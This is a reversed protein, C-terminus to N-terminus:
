SLEVTWNMKDETLGMQLRTLVSYLQQSVTGFGDVGYSVRNGKYTISGVPSVVVATGTCFVEDADLLEDVQVAREEVQFGESRAVDIISKRTIGPLITGKIAPTSIVNDKVMFINCSSVEELYKKHVCDLYLVDSYGKAKAASQAKLVAAYNGITKVGGTGGPTARHLEHEVILNIPAVGEKFYNGVPSVYILFTYEPAPALGLVAGSGMLLPRIYLSGKGPPPVWRKNALVTAKVAEVFQEVTPSPMCMREAGLRMRFANEEPRFLLINGDEKRYAKLGQAIASSLFTDTSSSIHRRRSFLLLSFPLSPLKAPSKSPRRKQMSRTRMGIKENDDPQTEVKEKSRESIDEREQSPDTVQSINGLNAERVTGPEESGGNEGQTANAHSTMASGQPTDQVLEAVIDENGVTKIEYTVESVKIVKDIVLLNTEEAVEHSQNSSLLAAQDQLANPETSSISHTIDEEHRRKKTGHSPSDDVRRKRGAQIGQESVLLSEGADIRQMESESDHIGKVLEGECPVEVIVKPEGDIGLPKRSDRKYKQGDSDVSVLKGSLDEHDSILSKEEPKMQAKDPTHKFILESCRKIWSFRASSPPSAGTAKSLPSNLGNGNVSVALNKDSDSGANQVVNQKLTKRESAKQRSLEIISNHMQAVMMNDLAAKLDGLKKLEEIESHIEKRDAHLLERQQKLKDRQVNLEEISKNLEAWERERRERDLKIEIREADLRKMELTAQELEKEAREKLANVHLLQNKKEREFAEEREKLSSELEERRKEICDELERKQTEIGLLFDAREQQIKNFWDSHETMMKKMFDERERNLSEVDKKHQERMMDRERRLSDREDKLFKSVAEREEHVRVAEKRLEERKEDILEWETEFKAKEVKLRDADVMLELKQARVLDLEEKLNLELTSLEHTESRMAELKEEFDHERECILDERQKIDMEKLEWARRKMEIENEAAKRKFELEAEFESKRIRLVTEHSATAKRIEDYEKNALKDQSALLEKEKKSLFAEREIVAEERKSLSASTLELNSKEDKLARREKEIEARSAELEKEVRNLEQTKSFIYEERKNLSAQGDLLREQEQQVIKQRESLLQRELIIEKEKADCDNKFLIIRRSLDDERAEVEQLKREATRRFLGAEAELSKAAHFKAEAEVFKKQADEVMIRAEALRTEAAVKSEASEARMEHLAKEIETELKAIYAILAAKDRRKISEEDFGAEKLRRWITEDSLPSKLVRSGPTISLARGSRPTVPSAM